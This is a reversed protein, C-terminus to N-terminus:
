FYHISIYSNSIAWKKDADLNAHYAQKFFVHTFNSNNVFLLINMITSFFNSTSYTICYM